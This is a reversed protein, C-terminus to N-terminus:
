EVHLHEIVKPAVQRWFDDSFFQSQVFGAEKIPQLYGVGSSVTNMKTLFMSQGMDGEDSILLYQVGAVDFYGVAVLRSLSLPAQDPYFDVGYVLKTSANYGIAAGDFKEAVLKEPVARSGGKRDFVIPGSGASRRVFSVPKGFWHFKLYIDLPYIKGQGSGLYDPLVPIVMYVPEAPKVKGAFCSRGVKPAALIYAHANHFVNGQDLHSNVYNSYRCENGCHVFDTWKMAGRSGQLTIPLGLYYGWYIVREYSIFELQDLGQYASPNSKLQQLYRALTGDGEYIYTGSAKAKLKNDRYFQLIPMFVQDIKKGRFSADIDIRNAHLSDEWVGIFLGDDLKEGYLCYRPKAHCLGASVLLMVVLLYKM